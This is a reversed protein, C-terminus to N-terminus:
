SNFDARQALLGHLRSRPWARAIAPALAIAAAGLAILEIDVLLALAARVAQSALPQLGANTVAAALVATAWFRIRGIDSAQQVNRRARRLVVAARSRAAATGLAAGVHGFARALWSERIVRAAPEFREASM